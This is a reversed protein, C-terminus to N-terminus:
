RFLITATTGDDIEFEITADSYDVLRDIIWLGIGSGHKLASEGHQELIDLEHVPIGPGNDAVELIPGDATERVRVTVTPSEHDTDHEIANRVLQQVATGLNPHAVVTFDSDFETQITAEPFERRVNSVAEDAVQTLSLQTTQAGTKVIDRMEQAHVSLKDLKDSARRINEVLVDTDHENTERIQEANGRIITLKNRLNHRLLRGLVQDLLELERRRSVLRMTTELNSALTEVLRRESESFSEKRTSGTTLIGFEGIPAIIESRIPGASEYADARDDINGIVETEGTEFVHGAISNTTTFAPIEDFFADTKPTVALPELTNKGADHRWIGSLPFDLLDPVRDLVERAVAEHSDAALMDRTIVQVGELGSERTARDLAIKVTRSLLRAFQYDTADFAGIEPSSVIFIGHDGLPLVIASQVPTEEGPVTGDFEDVNDINRPDGTTYVEWVVTDRDTYEDPEGEFIDTAVTTTAVPVLAETDRDYLHIGALSLDIIEETARVARECIDTQNRGALISETERYLAELTQQRNKEETIDVYLGFHELSDEVRVPAARVLFHGIGDVTQRKVEQGVTHNRIAEADLQKAEQELEHDDPVILDNLNRGVADQETYGFTEEFATNVRRIVPESEEFEVNVAPTQIAEFAAQFRNRETRLQTEVRTHRCAEALKGNLPDLESATMEFGGADSCLVLVGFKPLEMVYYERDRETQGIRPLSRGPIEDEAPLCDLGAQLTEDDPNSPVTTVEDYIRDSDDTRRELVSGTVCNLQALYASLARNATEEVSEGHGIALSIKYLAQSPHERTTM